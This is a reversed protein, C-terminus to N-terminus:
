KKLDKYWGQYKTSSAEVKTKEEKLTKVQEEPGAMTRM